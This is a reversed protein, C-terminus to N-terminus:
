ALVTPRRPNNCESSSGPDKGDILYTNCNNEVMSEWPYGYLHDLLKM